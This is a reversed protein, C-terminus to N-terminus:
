RTVATGMPSSARSRRSGPRKPRVARRTSTCSTPGPRRGMGNDIGLLVQGRPCCCCGHPPTRRISRTTPSRPRSTPSRLEGAPATPDFEFFRTPGGSDPMDAEFLVHGNPLMRAGDVRRRRRGWGSGFWEPHGSRRGLKGRREHWRRPDAAHLDRDPQFARIALVRGDPLLVGPGMNQYASIGAELAVPVSGADVWTMTTPDLRQAEGPNSNM